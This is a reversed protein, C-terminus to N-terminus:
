SCFLITTRAWMGEEGFKDNDDSDDKDDIINNDDNDGIVYKWQM